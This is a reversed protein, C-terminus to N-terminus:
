SAGTEQTGSDYEEVANVIPGENTGVCECLLLSYVGGEPYPWKVAAGVAGEYGDACEYSPGEEYM